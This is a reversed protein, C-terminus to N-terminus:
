PAAKEPPAEKAQVHATNQGAVILLTFFATLVGATGAISLAVEHPEFNRIPHQAYAARNV